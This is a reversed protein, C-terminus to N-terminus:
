PQQNPENDEEALRKLEALRGQWFVEYGQLWASVERLGENDLAYLRERADESETIRVLRAERLVRLHKSVAIRTMEGFRAAIDGARMPGRDRLLDLIERRTPDAIARFALGEAM